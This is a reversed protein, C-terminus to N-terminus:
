TIPNWFPIWSRMASTKTALWSKVSVLWAFGKPVAVHQMAAIQAMYDQEREAAAAVRVQIDGLQATADRLQRRLDAIVNGHNEQCLHAAELPAQVIAVLEAEVFTTMDILTTISARAGQQVTGFVIARIRSVSVDPYRAIAAVSLDESWNMLLDSADGDSVESLNDTARIEVHNDFASKTRRNKLLASLMTQQNFVREGESNCYVGVASIMNASRGEVFCRYVNWLADSVLRTGAPLLHGEQSLLVKLFMVVLDKNAYDHLSSDCALLTTRLCAIVDAKAAGASPPRPLVPRKTLAGFNSPPMPPRAGGFGAGKYWCFSAVCHAAAANSTQISFTEFGMLECKLSFQTGDRVWKWGRRGNIFSGDFIAPINIDTFVSDAVISVKPLAIGAMAFSFSSPNLFFSSLVGSPGAM